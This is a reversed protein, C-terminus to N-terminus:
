ITHAQVVGTLGADCLDKSYQHYQIHPKLIM